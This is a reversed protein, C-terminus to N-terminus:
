QPFFVFFIVGVQEGEKLIIEKQYIDSAHPTTKIYVMNKGIKVVYIQMM